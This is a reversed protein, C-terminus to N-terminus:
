LRVDFERHFKLAKPPITNLSYVGFKKSNPDEFIRFYSPILHTDIEVVYWETDKISKGHIKKTWANPNRKIMKEVDDPSIGMYVREPHTANVTNNRPQIGLTMIKHYVRKPCAHYLKKPIDLMEIDFKAEFRLIINDFLEIKKYFLDYNFKDHDQKLNNEIYYMYSPFWGLNNTLSLIKDLSEGNSSDIRINFVNEDDESDCDVRNQKLVSITQNLNTTRILGENLLFEDYYIDYEEHPNYINLTKMLDRLTMRRSM